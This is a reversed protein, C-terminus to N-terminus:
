SDATRVFHAISGAGRERRLDRDDREVEAVLRAVGPYTNGYGGTDVADHFLLHGGPRLLERWREYDRRAGQYTHDGDVFVLAPPEPPPPATRSDGVVLEVRSDLGYRRLAGLLARDLDPGQLDARLPVHLDYSYLRGGGGLAAALLLTSGGKFRGIEVVTGGGLDRALRYLLAGEDLQLSAIGHNLQNSSFLFDLDEFGRLQEPWDRVHEFRALAPDRLVAAHIAEKGLKTRGARVLARKVTEKLLTDRVAM